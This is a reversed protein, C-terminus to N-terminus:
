PLLGKTPALPPLGLESCRERIATLAEQHPLEYPLEGGGEILCDDHRDWILGAMEDSVLNLTKCAIRAIEISTFTAWRAPWWESDELGTMCVVVYRDSNVDAM